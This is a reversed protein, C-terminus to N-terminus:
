SRSPSWIFCACKICTERQEGENMWQTHGCQQCSYAGANHVFFRRSAADAPALEIYDEPLISLGAKKRKASQRIVSIQGSTEFYAKQVEGLQSVDKSRLGRFLDEHSLNSKRLAALDIVGESVICESRGELVNEIKKHSNIVKEFLLQLLAVTTIAVLGHFIPVEAGMMPDGVASGFCIIIALELTSLQGMGRKGLLRLLFISYTYMIVTRFIIELLFLGPADGLFIRHFDFVKIENM